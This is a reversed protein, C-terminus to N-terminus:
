PVGWFPHFDETGPSQTLNVQGTGDANMLWIEQDGTRDSTFAIRDSAPSWTPNFNGSTGSGMESAVVQLNTVSSGDFDGVLIENEGTTFDVRTVALKAGDPSVAAEGFWWSNGNDDDILLSAGSGDDNAIRVEFLGDADADTSYVVRGAPTFSPLSADTLIKQLGTGDLNMVFVDCPNFCEGPRDRDSEFVLRTDATDASGRRYFAPHNTLNQQGSGDDAARWIDSTFADGFTPHDVYAFSQFSMGSRREGASAPIVETQEGTLPNVSRISGTGDGTDNVSYRIPAICNVSIGDDDLISIAIAGQDPTYVNLIGQVQVGDVDTGAQDCTVTVPLQVSTGAPLVGSDTFHARLVPFLDNVPSLDDITLSVPPDTLQPNEQDVEVVDVVLPSLIVPWRTGRNRIDVARSAADGVLLEIPETVEPSGPSATEVIEVSFDLDGDEGVTPPEPALPPPPETGTAVAECSRDPLSGESCVDFAAIDCTTGEIPGIDGCTEGTNSDTWSIGLRVEGRFDSPLPMLPTVIAGVRVSEGPGLATGSPDSESFGAFILDPIPDIGFEEFTWDTITTSSTNTLKVEFFLYEKEDLDVGYVPPPQPPPLADRTFDGITLALLIANLPDPELGSPLPEGPTGFDLLVGFDDRNNDTDQPDSFITADNQNQSAKDWRQLVFALPFTPVPEGEAVGLALEGWEVADEVMGDSDEIRVAGPGDQLGVFTFDRSEVGSAGVLILDGATVEGSLETIGYEQGDMATAVLRMGDLVGDETALLEVFDDAHRNERTRHQIENIVLMGAPAGLVGMVSFGDIEGTVEDAAADSASGAIEQWADPQARFLRLRPEVVGDPIDSEAYRITLQVPETFALGDPGFDFVTNQVLRGSQPFDTAPEVTIATEEDLAGAPVELEVAGEHFTVTGGDPGVTKTNESQESPPDPGPDTPTKDKDCGILALAALCALLLVLITSNKM